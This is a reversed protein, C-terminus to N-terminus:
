GTALCQVDMSHLFAFLGRPEVPCGEDMGEGLSGRGGDGGIWTGVGVSSRAVEVRGREPQGADALLEQGFAGGLGAEADARELPEAAPAPEPDHHRKVSLTVPASSHGLSSAASELFQTDIGHHVVLHVLKVSGLALRRGPREKAKSNAGMGRAITYARNEGLGLAASHS